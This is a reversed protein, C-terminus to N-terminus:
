GDKGGEQEEKRFFKSVLDIGQFVGKILTVWQLVPKVIEDRVASSIENITASTAKISDMVSRAKNYLLYALVAIFIVVVTVVLGSICIVLDRFWGIDM